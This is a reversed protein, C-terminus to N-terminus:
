RLFVEGTEVDMHDIIALSCIDVGANRLRAGGDQFGKEVAIGVGIVNTGADNMLQLLGDLAAGNALFDDIILINEGKSLFRKSIFVRSVVHHTYSVVDTAYVDGSINSTKSKKAFVLPVGLQQAVPYAIAIGSSEITIVKDIQKGQFYAIWERAMGDILSTDIQHNLFSDIKLVDGAAVIGERQIREKLQDM